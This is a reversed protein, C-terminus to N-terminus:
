ICKPGYWSNSQPGFIIRTIDPAILAVTAFTNDRCCQCLNWSLLQTHCRGTGPWHDATHRTTMHDGSTLPAALSPWCICLLCGAGASPLPQIAACRSVLMAMMPPPCLFPEISMSMADLIAPSGSKVALSSPQLNCSLHCQWQSASSVTCLVFYARWLAVNSLSQPIQDWMEVMELLARSHADESRDSSWQLSRMRWFQKWKGCHFFM